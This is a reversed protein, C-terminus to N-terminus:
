LTLPEPADHSPRRGSASAANRGGATFTGFTRAIIAMADAVVTRDNASWGAIQAAMEAHAAQLAAELIVHGASTVQLSMRRRNGAREARTVLQKAVLGGVLRSANPLSAGLHEAVSSLCTEPQRSIFLLAQFQVLSLGRRHSRMRHRMFWIVPPASEMLLSACADTDRLATAESLQQM